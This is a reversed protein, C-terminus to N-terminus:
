KNEDLLPFKLTFETFEHELSDCSIDGGFSEMVMKTFSLGIGTGHLTRSFFREFVHPLIDPAIGTGTDKFHVYNCDDGKTLWIYIKGTADKDAVRLYYLANKLLNFIIHITLVKQGFFKFDAISNEASWIVEEREGHDFPYRALAENICDSISCVEFKKQDLNSMGSKALLMDIAIFAERTEAEIEDPASLLAKHDIMPMDPVALGAKQALEYTEILAPLCKKLGFANSSINRLPTRLEHAISSALLHMFSAVKEAHDKEHQLKESRKRDTIDFSIGLVGEINNKEDLLPLKKSLFVTEKDHYNAIEEATEEMGTRMVRLDTEKYSDALEKSSLEYDTKGIVDKFSSFGLSRAQSENCGLYVGNKNKWYVHGPLFDIISQLVLQTQRRALVLGMEQEKISSIDFSIGLLGIIEGNRDKLPIKESLYIITKGDARLYPEEAIQPVGTKMVKNNIRLIHEANEKTQFEPVTRGVIDKSSSLGITKAQLANCGLFINDRDLWYVHGPLNEIITELDPIQKKKRM